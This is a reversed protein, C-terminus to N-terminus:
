QKVRLNAPRLKPSLIQLRSEHIALRQTSNPDREIELQSPRRSRLQTGTPVFAPINFEAFLRQLGPRIPAREEDAPLSSWEDEQAPASAPSSGATQELRKPPKREDPLITSRAPLIPSSAVRPLPTSFIFSNALLESPPSLTSFNFPSISSADLRSLHLNPEDAIWPPPTSHESM